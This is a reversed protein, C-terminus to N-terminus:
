SRNCCNSCPASPRILRVIAARNYEISFWAALLNPGLATTYIAILPHRRVWTRWGPAPLLLERSRPKLCLDLQRALDGATAFRQEVPALCKLLVDALGPPLQKRVSEAVGANRRAVLLALTRPWDGEVGEDPFPRSGTLLEWLTVALSFLDTRGDLSEPM